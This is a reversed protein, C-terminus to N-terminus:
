EKRWWIGPENPEGVVPQETYPSILTPHVNNDDFWQLAAERCKPLNWDDVIIVGGPSVKDYLRNFVTNFAYPSDADFYLLAIQKIAGPLTDRFDGELFHVWKEDIGGLGTAEIINNKTSQLSVALNGTRHPASGEPYGAFTDCAWIDRGVTDFEMIWAIVIATLGGRWVGCEIYDGPVKTADLETLRDLVSAIRYKCLKTLSTRDVGQTDAEVGVFGRNGKAIRKWVVEIWRYSADQLEHWNKM